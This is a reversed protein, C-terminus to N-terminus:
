IKREKKNPKRYRREEAEVDSNKHNPKGKEVIKKEKIHNKHTL